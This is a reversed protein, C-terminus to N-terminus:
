LVLLLVVAAAVAIGFLGMVVQVVRHGYNLAFGIGYRSPVILSKDKKNCYFMELKWYEPLQRNIFENQKQKKSFLGM